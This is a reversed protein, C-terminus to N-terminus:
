PTRDGYLWDLGALLRTAPLGRLGLNRALRPLGSLHYIKGNRRSAAAVRTTRTKRASEYALLARSMEAHRTVCEALTVADELAMSGGQALFPLIPHAADGLLTVRGRTWAPLPAADFLAWRRWDAAEALMSRLSPAFHRLSDLLRDRDVAGGWDEERWDEDIIAVIAIESGARVPYHVVHADPALWVGTVATDIFRAASRADLVTRSATKGAFSLGPGPFVQSRLRSFIGDACVLARGDVARGTTDHARVGATTEAFTSIDFGTTVEILPERVVCTLLAEQVDRRHAVWYPAGYRDEIWPVLPIRSLVNGTPGDLIKIAEPRGVAPALVTDVGLARLARVGNPSIQIGAGAESFEPRRELVRSPIGRRALAIAAALGGIGGGAILVPSSATM